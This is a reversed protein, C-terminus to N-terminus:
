KTINKVMFSVVKSITKLVGEFGSFKKARLKLADFNLNEGFNYKELLEPFGKIKKFEDSINYYDRLSYKKEPKFQPSSAINDVLMSTINLPTKGSEPHHSSHKRHFKTVFKHPFGFFYMLMKDADHTIGDISNKGYLDKEILGYIIKHDYTRKINHTYEKVFGSVKKTFKDFYGFLGTSVNPVPRIQLIDGTNAVKVKPANDRVTAYPRKQQQGFTPTSSYVYQPNLRFNIEM